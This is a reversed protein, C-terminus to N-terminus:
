DPGRRSARLWDISVEAVPQARPADHHFHALAIQAFQETDRELLNLFVFLASVPKGRGHHHANGFDEFNVDSIKVVLYWLGLAAAHDFRWREGFKRRAQVTAPQDVSEEVQFVVLHSARNGIERVDECSTVLSFDGQAGRGHSRREDGVTIAAV